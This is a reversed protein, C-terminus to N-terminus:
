RVTQFVGLARIATQPSGPSCVCSRSPDVGGCEETDNKLVLHSSSGHLFCILARQQSLLMWMRTVAKAHSGPSQLLNAELLGSGINPHRRWWTMMDWDQIRPCLHLVPWIAFSSWFTVHIVHVLQLTSLQNVNFVYCYISAARVTSLSASVNKAVYCGGEDSDM